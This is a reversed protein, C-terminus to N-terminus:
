KEDESKAIRDQYNSKIRHWNIEQKNKVMFMLEEPAMGLVLMCNVFFQFADRLEEKVRHENMESSTTWSRWAFEHMAEHLEDEMCFMMDKLKENRDRADKIPFLGYAEQLKKQSEMIDDFDFM